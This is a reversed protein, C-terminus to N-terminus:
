VGSNNRGLLLSILEESSMDEYRPNIDKKNKIEEYGLKKLIAKTAEEGLELCNVLKGDRVESVSMVNRIEGGPCRFLPRGHKLCNEATNNGNILVAYEKDDTVGVIAELRKLRGKYIKM